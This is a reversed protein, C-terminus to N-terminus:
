PEAPLRPLPAITVEDNTVRSPTSPEIGAAVVMMGPPSLLSKWIEIASLALACLKLPAITRRTPSEEMVSVLACTLQSGLLLISVMLILGPWVVPFFITSAMVVAWPALEDLMGQVATRAPSLVPEPLSPVPVMVVVAILNLRANEVWYALESGNWSLKCCNTLASPSVLGAMTASSWAAVVRTWTPAEPLRVTLALAASVRSKPRSRVLGDVM